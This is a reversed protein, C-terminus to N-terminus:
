SLSSTTFPAKTHKGTGKVVWEQERVTVTNWVKQTAGRSEPKILSHCQLTHPRIYLVWQLLSRICDQPASSNIGIFHVEFLPSNSIPSLCTFVNRKKREGMSHHKREITWISFDMSWTSAGASHGARNRGSHQVETAVLAM